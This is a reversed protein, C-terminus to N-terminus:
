LTSLVLYFYDVTALPDGFEKANLKFYHGACALFHIRMATGSEYTEVVEALRLGNSYWSASDTEKPAVLDGVKFM